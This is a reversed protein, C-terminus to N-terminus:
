ARARRAKPQRAKGSQNDYASLAEDLQEDGWNEARSAPQIGNWDTVAQDCAEALNPSQAPAASAPAPKFAEVRASTAAARERLSSTPDRRILNKLSARFSM